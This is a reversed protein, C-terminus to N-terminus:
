NEGGAVFSETEHVRWSQAWLELKRYNDVEDGGLFFYAPNSLVRVTLSAGRIRRVAYGMSYDFPNGLTLPGLEAFAHDVGRLNEVGGLLLDQDRVPRPAPGGDDYWIEGVVVRQGLDSMPFYLRTPSGVPVGGDLRSGGVYCEAVQLGNAAVVDTVRYRSAAKYVQVSWEGVAMYLARVAHGAVDEVVVTWPALPDGTAYAVGVQVGPTGPDLDRIQLYGNRKNVSYGNQSHTADPMNGMIIAGTKVDMLVFDDSRVELAGSGSLAPGVVGIGTTIRGDPGTVGLSKVGVMVLKLDGPGSPLRMEDRLIRWDLVTYDVTALLPVRQGRATRVEFDFAAPNVLITGFSGNIAKYQYPNAPNFAAAIPVEQYLRQVRVSDRYVGLVSAPNYLVRGHIDQQGALEPLSVVWFNDVITAYPPPAAPNLPISLVMEYQRTGGPSAYAFTMAVRLEKANSPGVWIQDQGPYPQTKSFPGTLERDVFYFEWERAPGFSAPIPSSGQRDGSRRAMENGYVQLFGPEGVGVPLLFYYIPGFNLHVLSGFQAGVNRPAPVKHSEGIVRSIRNSGSVLPWEALVDGGVIVNGNIDIRGPDPDPDKPPMLGRTAVSGDLVAVLGGATRFHRVPGIYLPLQGSAGALREVEGEALATSLLSAATHRLATLGPPFIQVLALVGVLFVVIVVLVEILSSGSTGRALAASKRM